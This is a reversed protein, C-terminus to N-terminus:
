LLSIENVVRFNQFARRGTEPYTKMDQTLVTKWPVMVSFQWQRSGTTLTHRVSVGLFQGNLVAKWLAETYPKGVTFIDPNWVASGHAVANRANLNRWGPSYFLRWKRKVARILRTMRTLMDSSSSMNAHWQHPLPRPVVTGSCHKGHLFSLWPSQLTRSPCQIMPQM